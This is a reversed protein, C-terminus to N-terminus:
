LIVRKIRCMCSFSYFTIVLVTTPSCVSGNSWLFCGREISAGQAMGFVFCGQHKLSFCTERYEQSSLFLAAAESGVRAENWSAEREVHYKDGRMSWKVSGVHYKDGRMGKTRCLALRKHPPVTYLHTHNIELSRSLMSPNMWLLNVHSSCGKHLNSCV